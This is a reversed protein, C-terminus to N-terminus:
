LFSNDRGIDQQEDPTEMGIDDVLDIIAEDIERLLKNSVSFSAQVVQTALLSKRLVVISFYLKLFMM